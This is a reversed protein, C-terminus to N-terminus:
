YYKIEWNDEAYITYFCAEGKFTKCDNYAYHKANSRWISYWHGDLKLRKNLRVYYFDKGVINPKSDAGNVDIYLEMIGSYQGVVWFTFGPLDTRYKAVSPINCREYEWDYKNIYRYSRQDSQSVKANRFYKNIEKQAINIDDSKLADALETQEFDGLSEGDVMAKQFANMILTYDKKLSTAYVKKEYNAILSPLTLAAIVGIVGLTVLVEALTFGFKKM